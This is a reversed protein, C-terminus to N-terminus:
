MKRTLLMSERRCCEIWGCQNALCKNDISYRHRECYIYMASFVNLSTRILCKWTNNLNRFAGKHAHNFLHIQLRLNRLLHFSDCEKDYIGCEGYVNMIIWTTEAWKQTMNHLWLKAFDRFVWGIRVTRKSFLRLLISRRFDNLIEGHCIINLKKPYISGKTDFSRFKFTYGFKLISFHSISEIKGFNKGRKGQNIWSFQRWSM